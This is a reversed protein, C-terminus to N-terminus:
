FDKIEARPCTFEFDIDSGVYKSWEDASMNRNLQPCIQTALISPDTPWIRIESESCAAILYDSGKAFAIDWVFGDNNDMVVPLDEPNELVWLQLRKDAGASALLQGDPSFEVDYVGARHGTFQRTEKTKFNYLKVVGRRNTNDYTGYALSSGDPSFKVTNIRFTGDDVLTTYTSNILNVSILKGSWTAGALLKGDPSISITKIEFPLDLIKKSEGTKHNVITLEYNKSM